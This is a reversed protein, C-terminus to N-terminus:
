KGSKINKLMRDITIIMIYSKCKETNTSLLIKMSLPLGNFGILIQLINDMVDPRMCLVFFNSTLDM